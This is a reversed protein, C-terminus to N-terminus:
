QMLVSARGESFGRTAADLEHVDFPQLSPWDFGETHFREPKKLLARSASDTLGMAGPTDPGADPTPVIVIGKSSTRIAQVNTWPLMFDAGVMPWVAVGDGTLRLAVPPASTRRGSFLWLPFAFAILMFLTPILLIWAIAAFPEGVVVVFAIILAIMIVLYGVMTGIITRRARRLRKIPGNAEPRYLVEFKNM